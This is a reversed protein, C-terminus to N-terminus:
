VQALIDVDDDKWRMKLQEWWDPKIWMKGGDWGLVETQAESSIPWIQRFIHDPSCPKGDGETRVELLCRECWDRDLCIQCSWMETCVTVDPKCREGAGDCRPSIDGVDFFISGKEPKADAVASLGCALSASGLLVAYLTNAVKSELVDLIRALTLLRAQHSRKSEKWPEELTTIQETVWPAAAQRLQTSDRPSMSFKNYAHILYVGPLLACLREFSTSTSHVGQLSSDSFKELVSLKVLRDSAASASLVRDLYLRSKYAISWGKYNDSKISSTLTSSILDLAHAFIDSESSYPLLAGIEFLGQAQNLADQNGKKELLLLEITDALLQVDTPSGRKSLSGLNVAFEPFHFILHAVARSHYKPSHAELIEDLVREISVEDNGVASVYSILHDDLLGGRSTLWAVEPLLGCLSHAMVQYAVAKYYNRSPEATYAYAVFEQARWNEPDLEVAKEFHHLSKSSKGNYSLFLGLFFHGM